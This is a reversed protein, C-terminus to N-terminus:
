GVEEVRWEKELLSQSLYLTSPASISKTAYLSSTARENPPWSGQSTLSPSPTARKTPPALTSLLHHLSSISPQKLSRLLAIPLPPPTWDLDGEHLLPLRFPFACPLHARQGDCVSRYVGKYLHVGHPATWDQLEHTNPSTRFAYHLTRGLSPRFLVSSAVHPQQKTSLSPIAM